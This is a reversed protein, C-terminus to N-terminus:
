CWLAITISLPIEAKTSPLSVCSWEIRHYGPPVSPRLAKSVGNRLRLTILLVLSKGISLVSKAYHFTKESRLGRNGESNDECGPGLQRKSVQFDSFKSDAKAATGSSNLVDESM